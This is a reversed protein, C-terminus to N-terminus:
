IGYWVKEFIRYSNFLIKIKKLKDNNFYPKKALQKSETFYLKHRSKMINDNEMINYYVLIDKIANKVFYHDNDYLKWIMQEVFELLPSLEMDYQRLTEFIITIDDKNLYKGGNVKNDYVIRDLQENLKKSLNDSM